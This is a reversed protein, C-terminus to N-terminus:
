DFHRQNLGLQPLKKAAPEGAAKKMDIGMQSMLCDDMLSQPTTGLFEAARVLDALSWTTSGALKKSMASRQVGMAKALASQSLDHATLLMRVNWSVVSEMYPAKDIQVGAGLALTM